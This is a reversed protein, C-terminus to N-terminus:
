RIYTIQITSSQSYYIFIKYMLQLGPKTINTKSICTITYNLNQFRFSVEHNELKIEADHNATYKKNQINWINIDNLKVHLKYLFKIDEPKIM